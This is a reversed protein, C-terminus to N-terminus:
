VEGHDEGALSELMRKRMVLGKGIESRDDPAFKSADVLDLIDKERVQELYQKIAAAVQEDTLKGFVAAANWNMESSRLEQLEPLAEPSMGGPRRNGMETWLLCGGFYRITPRGNKLLVMNDFQDGTPTENRVLVSHVFWGAIDPNTQALKGLQMEDLETFPLMEHGAGVQNTPKNKYFYDVHSALKMLDAIGSCLYQSAAQDVIAPFYVRHPRTSKEVEYIGDTGDALYGNGVKQGVGNEPTEIQEPAGPQQFREEPM